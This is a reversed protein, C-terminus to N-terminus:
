AAFMIRVSFRSCRALVALALVAVALLTHIVLAHQLQLTYEICVEEALHTALALEAALETPQNGGGGPEAAGVERPSISVAASERPARGSTIVGGSLEEKSSRPSRRRGGAALAERAATRQSCLASTSGYYAHLWLLCTAM